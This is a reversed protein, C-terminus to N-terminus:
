KVKGDRAEAIAKWERQVAVAWTMLGQEDAALLAHLRDVHEKLEAVGGMVFGAEHSGVGRAPGGSCDLAAVFLETLAQGDLGEVDVFRALPYGDAARVVLEDARTREIRLWRPASGDASQEAM